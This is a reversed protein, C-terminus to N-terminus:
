AVNVIGLILLILGMACAIVGIGRTVADHGSWVPRPAQDPNVPYNRFSGPSVIVTIGIAVMVVGAVIFIPGKPAHHTSGAALAVRM